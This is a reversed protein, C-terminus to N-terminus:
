NSGQLVVNRIIVDLIVAQDSQSHHKENGWKLWDSCKSRSLYIAYWLFIFGGTGFRSCQRIRPEFLCTLLFQLFLWGFYILHM